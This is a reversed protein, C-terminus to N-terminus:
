VQQKRVECWDMLGQRGTLRERDGVTAGPRGTQLGAM